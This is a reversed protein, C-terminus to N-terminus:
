DIWLYNMSFSFILLSSSSSLLLNSYSALSALIALLFSSFLILNSFSLLSLSLYYAKSYNTAFPSYLGLISDREIASISLWAASAGGIPNNPPNNPSTKNNEPHKALKPVSSPYYAPNFSHILPVSFITAMNLSKTYYTQM